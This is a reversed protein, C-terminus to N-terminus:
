SRTHYPQIRRINVRQQVHGKEITVTGNDHIEVVDYPGTRPAKVKALIGPTTLLVRDGRNYKHKLRKANEKRNSENISTQKQKRIQAWDALYQAPLLMDRGYVLQAPSAKYTTHHTSRIAYATATLFEDWPDTPDLEREELEFTRLANGLVQHVREVVGNSQPNYETSRKRKIGYNDLLEKFHKSFHSGNDTGVYQPRPYRSLWYSDFKKQTEYSELTELPAVEFWGTVPDIMTLAQLKLEKSPTKVKYPGIVDVNVRKWPVTEAEKPPLQGYKLKQKKMLQCQHCTKCYEHVKERLGKFEFVQRITAEMRTRGPHQLLDHYTEVLANQLAQPVVIKNNKAILMIDEMEILHYQDNTRLKQKLYSDKKQYQDIVRPDLPFQQELEIDKDTVLKNNNLTEHPHTTNEQLLEEKSDMPHRSLADAVVNEEGKM